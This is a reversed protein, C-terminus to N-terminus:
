NLSIIIILLCKHLAKIWNELPAKCCYFDFNFCYFKYSISTFALDLFFFFRDIIVIGSCILRLSLNFCVNVNPIFKIDLPLNNWLKPAAVSFARDGYSKLNYRPVNLVYNDSTRRRRTPIRLELRDCMCTYLSALGNCLM